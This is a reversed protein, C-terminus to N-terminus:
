KRDNMEKLKAYKFFKNVCDSVAVVLGQYGDLFGFRFFYNYFFAWGGRMIPTFVNVKRKKVFLEEAGITSYKNIKEITQRLDRNTLHIIPDKIEGVRGEVLVAEHVLHESMRGATKHFLRVVRDPWWGMRKIWRGSFVNKRPLSYGEFGEGTIAASIAEATEGPIREDADLVLVWEHDCKDIAFQKQPGFGLWPQLFVRAGYEEAIDVTRDKSGSDVVVVDSAFSLSALCDSLRDEENFTIIAVSLNIKNM